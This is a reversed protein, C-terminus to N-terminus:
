ALWGSQGDLYENRLEPLGFRTDPNELIKAKTILTASRNGFLASIIAATRSTNMLYEELIVGYWFLQFEEIPRDATALELIMEAITERHTVTACFRFVSKTLHPYRSLIYPM